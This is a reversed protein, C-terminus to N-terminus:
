LLSKLCIGYHLTPKNHVTYMFLVYKFIYKNISIIFYAEMEIKLNYNEIHNSNNPFLIFSIIDLSNLYYLTM